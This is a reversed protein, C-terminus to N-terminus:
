TLSVIKLSLPFSMSTRLVYKHSLPSVTYSVLIHVYTQSTFHYLKEKYASVDNVFVPMVKYNGKLKLSLVNLHKTTDPLSAVDLAFKEDSIYYLYVQKKQTIFEQIVPLLDM